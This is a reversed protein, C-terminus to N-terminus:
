FNFMIWHFLCGSFLFPAFPLRKNKSSKKILMYIVAFFSAATFSYLIVSIIESAPYFFGITLTMIGDGIGMSGKSLVSLAIILVGISLSILLSTIDKHNTLSLCFMVIGLLSFLFSLFTSIKMATLDTYSCIALYVATIFFIHFM